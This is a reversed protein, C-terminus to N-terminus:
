LDLLKRKLSMHHHHKIAKNIEDKEVSERCIDPIGLTECIKTAEAAPGLLGLDLQEELVQRAQCGEEQNKIARILLLKEKWVHGKMGLLGTSGRLAPLPTSRPLRLIARVMENQLHDLM